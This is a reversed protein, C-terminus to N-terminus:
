LCIPYPIFPARALISITATDEAAPFYKELADHFKSSAGSSQQIAHPVLSVEARRSAWLTQAASLGRYANLAAVAEQLRTGLVPHELYAQAEALGSIGYRVSILVFQVQSPVENLHIRPHRPM